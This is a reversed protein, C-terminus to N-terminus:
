MTLADLPQYGSELRWPMLWSREFIGVTRLVDLSSVLMPVKRGGDRSVYVAFRSADERKDFVFLVGPRGDPFDRATDSSSYYNQYRDLKPGMRAPVTASREFELVFSMDRGGHRLMMTADPKIVRWIDAYDRSGRRGYRYRKEWGHAPLLQVVEWSWAERCSATLLSTFAYVGDTHRREKLLVRGKKGEILHHPVRYAEDGGPHPTVLWHHNMDQLSSRDVRSLYRLGDGSLCLRSENAHRQAATRGVRLHHALRLRSLLGVARRMHGESVGMMAQLQSVRVFPCDWLLRLVHRAPMTLTTAVMDLEGADDSLREAPMTLRQVPQRTRPMDSVPARCLVDNFSRRTGDYMQWPAPDLSANLVDREAAVSIMHRDSMLNLAMNVEIPGPVILLSAQLQRRQHMADLTRVRSRLAQTSHTTGLRSLGLTRGDALQMAADLGGSRSWWWRIPGRGNAAADRAVGYLVAAADLRRLVYRRDQASVPMERLLAEPSEGRLRLRALREIGAGTLCWRRVRSTGSRSHRVFEVLSNAHFRKLVDATTSSPLKALSALETSDLFPMLALAELVRLENVSPIPM